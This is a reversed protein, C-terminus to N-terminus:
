AAPSSGDPDRGYMLAVVVGGIAQEVIHWAADVIILTGTHNGGTAYLVLDHPLTWLVGILAGFRLGEWLPNGGDYGKPYIVGMIVELLLYALVVLRMLSVERVLATHEQYLAAMFSHHWLWSLTAMVLCSLAITLLFRQISM